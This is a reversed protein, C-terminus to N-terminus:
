DLKDAIADIKQVLGAILLGVEHMARKGDDSKCTPLNPILQVLALSVSKIKEADPARAAKRAARAEADAKAKADAENKRVIAEADAKAKNAIRLAEATRRNEEALRANEAKIRADEEQKTKAAAEAAEKAARAQEDRVQKAARCDRILNQYHIENMGDLNFQYPDAGTARIEEIRDRKIQEDRREQARKAFEEMDLLRAEAPEAVESVLKAIGDIARGTRLTDEKFDKRAKEAAIRVKRIALRADRAQEMEATQSEDTVSIGASAAVLTRVDACLPMFTQIIPHAPDLKLGANRIALEVAAKPDSASELAELQSDTIPPM